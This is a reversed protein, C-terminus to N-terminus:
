VGGDRARAICMTLSESPTWGCAGNTQRECRADRYCGYEPLFECTSGLPHDACLQDSCGTRQCAAVGSDPAPGADSAGECAGRRTYPEPPCSSSGFVTVGRCSCFPGFDATCGISTKCRWPVGCGMPGTCMEGSGCESSTTCTRPERGTDAPGGDVCARRTCVIQLSDTCACENCGDDSSFNQGPRFRRGNDTVCEGAADPSTADPATSSDSSADQDSGVPKPYLCGQTSALALSAVAFLVSRLPRQM